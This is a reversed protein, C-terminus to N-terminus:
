NPYFGPISLVDIESSLTTAWFEEVLGEDLNELGKKVIDVYERVIVCQEIPVLNTKFNSSGIYVHGKTGVHNYDLKDSVDKRFYNLERKDFNKLQQPSVHVLSGLIKNGLSESVDLYVIYKKSSPFLKRRKEPYKDLEHFLTWSRVYDNLYTIKFDQESINTGLTKEFSVKNILSGYGFISVSM